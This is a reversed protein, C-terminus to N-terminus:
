SYIGLLFECVHPDLPMALTNMTANNRIDGFQFDLDGLHESCLLSYIWQTLNSM